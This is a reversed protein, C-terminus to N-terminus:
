GKLLVLLDLVKDKLQSILEPDHTTAAPQIALEAELEVIRRDSKLRGENTHVLDGRLQEIQEKLAHETMRELVTPPTVVVDDAGNRVEVVPVAPPWAIKSEARHLDIRARHNPPIDLILVHAPEGRGITDMAIMGADRLGKLLPTLYFRDAVHRPRAEKRLWVNVDGTYEGGHRELTEMIVAREHTARIADSM